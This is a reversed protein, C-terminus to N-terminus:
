GAMRNPYSAGTPPGSSAPAEWRPARHPNDRRTRQLDGRIQVGRHGPRHGRRRPTGRLCAKCPAPSWAARPSGELSRRGSHSNAATATGLPSMSWYRSGRGPFGTRGMGWRCRRHPPFHGAGLMRAPIRQQPRRSGPSGPKRRRSTGSDFRRPLSHHMCPHSRSGRRTTQATATDLPCTRLDSPGSCGNETCPTDSQCSRCRLCCKAVPSYPLSRKQLCRLPATSQTGGRFREARWRGFRM